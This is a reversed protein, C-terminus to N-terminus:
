TIFDLETLIVAGESFGEVVGALFLSLSLSSLNFLYVKWLSLAHKSLPRSLPTILWQGSCGTINSLEERKRREERQLFRFFLSLNFQLRQKKETELTGTELDTMTHVTGLMYMRDMFVTNKRQWLYKEEKWTMNFTTTISILCGQVEANREIQDEIM